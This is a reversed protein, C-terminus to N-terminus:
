QEYQTTIQCKVERVLILFDNFEKEYYSKLSFDKYFKYNWLIYKNEQFYAAMEIRDLQGIFFEKCKRDNPTVIGYSVLELERHGKTQKPYDTELWDYQEADWVNFNFLFNVKMTYGYTTWVDQSDSDDYFLENLSVEYQSEVVGLITKEVVMVDFAFIQLFLYAKDPM